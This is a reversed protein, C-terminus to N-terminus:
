RRSGIGCCKPTLTPVLPCSTRQSGEPRIELKLDKDVTYLKDESGEPAHPPYTILWLKGVWPVV